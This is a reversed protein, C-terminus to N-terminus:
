HTCCPKATLKVSPFGAVHWKLWTVLTVLLAQDILM